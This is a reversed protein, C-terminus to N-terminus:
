GEQSESIAVMYFIVKARVATGQVDVIDLADKQGDDTRQGFPPLLTRSVGDIVGRSSCHKTAVFCNSNAHSVKKRCFLVRRRSHM